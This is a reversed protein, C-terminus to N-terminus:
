EAGVGSWGIRRSLRVPTPTPARITHYPVVTVPRPSGTRLLRRARAYNVIYRSLNEETGPESCRRAYARVLRFVASTVPPPAFRPPGLGDARFNLDRIISNGHQVRATCMTEDGPEDAATVAFRTCRSMNGRCYRKMRYM